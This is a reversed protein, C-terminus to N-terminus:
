VTKEENNQTDSPKDKDVKLLLAPLFLFDLILAAAITIAMLIGTQQNVLFASQSLLAFGVILVVTTVWLAQGVTSFAYRIADETSLNKERRARLYKSLFHVTDDVVIGISIAFVISAAMGIVGYTLAWIGVAAIAPTLNPVLSLVGLKMSKLAFLLIFSILILAVTSSGLMNQINRMTINSFMIGTSTGQAHMEKPTNDVLWQEARQNFDILESTSLDGLTVSVKTASKNVNIQNNLDLGYPLSMEYLLLYQAALEQENPTKYWAQDDAHLNKNLRKLTDSISSVHVVEPQEYLWDQFKAIGSLFEPNNIGQAEASEISYFAMNIGTLNKIIYDSDTRFDISEDFYAVFNDDITVRPIMAAFFILVAISGWFLKKQKAIVFDALKTMGDKHDPDMNANVKIPMASAWAPLFTVSFVFAFMVGMATINGLDHFPPADSSNMALFGIATTISTLFIPGINIRLSEVIADDKTMGKKMLALMSILFHVSDAVALTMIITPASASPPTLAIGFWGAMGMATLISFAIVFVIGILSSFSKLLFLLMVFIFLYMIPILTQMDQMSAETFANNLLTIGSIHVEFQPYKAKFEGILERTFAVAEPTETQNQMSFQNIINIGTISGQPNILFNILQPENLAVKKIYEIRKDSLNEAKYVLDEVILDDEEAYTHQFNSISDVRSSYPIQWAQKTLWEVAELNEKTFIDGNKPSLAILINDEKSYTDQLKEFALLEPNEDSFFVRYDTDFTLNKGGSAIMLTAFLSLLIIWWKFRIVSQAYAQVPSVQM